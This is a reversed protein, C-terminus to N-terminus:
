PTPVPLDEVRYLVFECNYYYNPNLEDETDMEYAWGFFDETNLCLGLPDSLKIWKDLLRDYAYGGQSCRWQFMRSSATANNYNPGTINGGGEFLMTLEGDELLYLSGIWYSRNPNTAIFLFDEGGAYMPAMYISKGETMLPILEGDVYKCIRSLGQEWGEPDPGMVYISGDDGYVPRTANEIALTQEGTTLDYEYCTVRLAGDEDYGDYKALLMKNGNLAPYPVTGEVTPEYFM